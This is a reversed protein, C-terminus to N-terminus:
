MQPLFVIKLWKPLNNLTEESLKHASCNDLLLIARCHSGFRKEHDPKLVTHIWWETVNQTFWSNKQNQYHMPPVKRPLHTFCKPTKAKGIMALPVKWGSAATCVMLTIMTKDKMQKAGKCDKKYDKNLYIRNPLKQYYLGTQDANYIREMLNEDDDTSEEALWKLAPEWKDTNWEEMIKEHKEPSM